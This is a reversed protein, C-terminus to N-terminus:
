RQKNNQTRQADQINLLARRLKQSLINGKFQKTINTLIKGHREKPSENLLVYCKFRKIWCGGQNNTNKLYERGKSVSASSQTQWTFDMSKNNKINDERNELGGDKIPVEVALWGWCILRIQIWLLRNPVPFWKVSCLDWKQVWVTPRLLRVNRM